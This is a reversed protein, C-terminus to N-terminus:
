VRRVKIEKVDDSIDKLVDMKKIKKVNDTGNINVIFVHGRKESYIDHFDYMAGAVTLKGSEVLAKYKSVAYSVQCDVNHQAYKAQKKLEKEDKFEPRSGCCCQKLQTVEKIIGPTEKSVDGLSAKIAGCGTHGLIILLPTKLHLVGYDVSGEATKIQNGINEIMFFNNMPNVTFINQTVRSDSCMVLTTSPTQKELIPDFMDNSNLEAFEINGLLL